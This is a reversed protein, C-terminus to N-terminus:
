HFISVLIKSKYYYNGPLKTLFVFESFALLLIGTLVLIIEFVVIMQGISGFDM